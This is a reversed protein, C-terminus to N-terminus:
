QAHAWSLNKPHHGKVKLRIRYLSRDVTVYLLNADDGIGFEVNSPLGVPTEASEQDPPGTPIFAIEKGGPNVVMVGPRRPGRATLYINGQADVTMGDCGAQDGFDVLTKRVGSVRGDRGLPFAYIKMPGPKAPPAEPDTIRESGNDHEAVYLTKEDPSLGVGNPKAVDHTIEVVKGSADVRYVALHELDRTEHGLYRPDSFYVRGKSDLALDNPSNFKKGAYNDAVTTRKGTEINWRSIRRGGYDSGEAAILHGDADFSLGNSKSSDDTFITTKRTNPDFRIIRGKDKGFPIDSFYISGDPAVAPGETLGGEIYPHRTYLHELAAGSAVIAAGTPKPIDAAFAPAVTLLCLCAFTRMHM